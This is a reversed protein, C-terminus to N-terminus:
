NNKEENKLEEEVTKIVLKYLRRIGFVKAMILLENYMAGTDEKKSIEEWYSLYSEM